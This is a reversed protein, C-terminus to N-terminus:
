DISQPSKREESESYRYCSPSQFRSGTWISSIPLLSPWYLTFIYNTNCKSATAIENALVSRLRNKGMDNKAKDHRIKSWRNHGSQLAALKSFSQLRTFYICQRCIYVHPRAYGFSFRHLMSTRAKTSNSALFTSPDSTKGTSYSQPDQIWRRHRQVVRVLWYHYSYKNTLAQSARSFFWVGRFDM